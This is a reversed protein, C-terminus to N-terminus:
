GFLSRLNAEEAAEADEKAVEAAAYDTEERHLQFYVGAKFTIEGEKSIKIGAPSYHKSEGLALSRADRHLINVFANNLVNVANFEENSTNVDRNANLSRLPRGPLIRVPEDGDNRVMLTNVWFEVPPRDKKTRRGSSQGAEASRLEEEFQAEINSMTTGKKSTLAKRIHREGHYVGIDIAKAVAKKAAFELLQTKLDKM